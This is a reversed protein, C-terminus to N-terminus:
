NLIQSKIGYYIAKPLIKKMIKSHKEFKAEEEIKKTIKPNSIGKFLIKLSKNNMFKYIKKYKLSKKIEKNWKNWNKSYLEPKDKKIAKKLIEAAKMGYYIGGATLPKVQAAADGLLFKNNKSIKKTGIPVAGGGYDLITDELYSSHNIIRKLDEIEGNLTGVRARENSTPIVWIFFDTINKDLIVRVLDNSGKYPVEVQPGIVVEGNLNSNIEESVKSFVGDAGVLYNYKVKIEKDPTQIIGKEKQTKKYETNLLYKVQKKQALEAIEKDFIKRNVIYAQPNERNIQFKINDKLPNYQFIAGKVKNQVSKETISFEEFVKKGLIGACNVPEGIKGREVVLVDKEPALLSALYSGTPGGGVILVDVEIEHLSGRGLESM